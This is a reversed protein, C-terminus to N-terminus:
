TLLILAIGIFMIITGLMRERIHPENLFLHGFLVSIMGSARKLTVVYAVLTMSLATMHFVFTTTTFLSVFFLKKWHCKVAEYCLKKKFMTILTVCSFIFLNAFFIHQWVSSNVIAIKDYNSSVSWIIAVILMYRTGKNRILGKIPALYGGKRSNLNLLYSGCVILIIGVVGWFHPFEGVLVPSTVLLFLPTFSLMPIVESVDGESLAKMYLVVAIVNISGTMFLAFLYQQNFKLEIFFLIPFSFLVPLINNGWSVLLPDVGKLIAKKSFLNKFSESLPNLLAFIVWMNVM